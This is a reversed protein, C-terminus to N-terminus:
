VASIISSLSPLAAVYGDYTSEEVTIRDLSYCEDFATEIGSPVPFGSLYVDTLSGCSYFARTMDGVSDATIFATGLTQCGAFAESICSIYPSSNLSVLALCTDAFAYSGIQEVGYIHTHTIHRNYEFAHDGIYKTHFNTELAGNDDTYDSAAFAYRGISTADEFNSLCLRACGYFAYSGVAGCADNGGHFYVNELTCCNSFAAFGFDGGGMNVSDLAGCGEFAYDGIGWVNSGYFAIMSDCGNFAYAPVTDLNDLYVYGISGNGSFVGEWLQSVGYADVEFGTCPVLCNALQNVVSRPVGDGTTGGVAIHNGIISM